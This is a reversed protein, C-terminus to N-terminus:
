LIELRKVKLQKGSLIEKFPSNCKPCSDFIHFMEFLTGCELCKGEGQIKTIKKVASELVTGQCAIPWAFEFSDFEIGALIGIELYIIDVRKGNNKKTEKQAIDVIGQVISLEHM